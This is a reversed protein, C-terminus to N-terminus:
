NADTIYFNGSAADVTISWPETFSALKGTGDVSTALGNGAITTVVGTPTIKRILYNYTDAVYINGAADLAINQPHNFSAATGSGDAKGPQGASTGALTSVVGAPTIKAILNNSSDDVYINGFADVAVSTPNNFYALVGYQKSQNPNGALTTVVGTLQYTFLPGTITAGNDVSITINGTGASLPVLVTLQTATAASVTAAKGNFFVKDNAPTTDFNTGTIVVSTNFPGANVSLSTITVPPATNYTFQSGTVLTGGDVSLTINGTGANLPVTVTLQTTTAALVPAQKGNFYVKDNARTTDFGTGTIIVQTNYTGSNVNISAITVLTKYTFVPGTIAPANDVSLTINGTGPDLPVNVTLQTSTAASVTAAKGNFFVKDNATTADFGTGSIIVETNYTGSNVSISSITVPTPKVPPTNDSKKCALYCASVICAALLCLAQKKSLSRM